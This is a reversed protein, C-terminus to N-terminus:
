LIAFPVLLGYPKLLIVLLALLGYPRLLISFPVLLGNPRLLIALIGSVNYRPSCIHECYDQVVHIDFAIM